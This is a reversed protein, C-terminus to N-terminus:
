QVRVIPQTDWHIPGKLLRLVIPLRSSSSHCTLSTVKCYPRFFHAGCAALKVHKCYLMPMSLIFAEMGYNFPTRLWREITILLTFFTPSRHHLGPNVKIGHTNTLTTLTIPWNHDQNLSYPEKEGVRWGQNYLVILCKICLFLLHSKLWKLM